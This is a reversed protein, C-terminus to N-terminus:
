ELIRKIDENQLLIGTAARTYTCDIGMRDAFYEFLEIHKKDCSAFLEPQNKLLDLLKETIEDIESSIM